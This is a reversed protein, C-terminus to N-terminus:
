FQNNVVVQLIESLEHRLTSFMTFIATFGVTIGPTTHDM